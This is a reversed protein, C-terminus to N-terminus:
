PKRRVTRTGIWREVAFLALALAMLPVRADRSGGQGALGAAPMAQAISAERPDGADRRLPQWPWHALITDALAPGAVVEPNLSVVPRDSGFLSDTFPTTTLILDAVDATRAVGMQEGLLEAVAVSALRIRRRAAADQAHVLVAIPRLSCGACGGGASGAVRAHRYAVGRPGGWGTLTVLTEAAAPWRSATWTASGAPPLAHWRVRARLAPRRGGLVAVRPRAIVLMEGNRSVLPDASVLLDWLTGRQDAASASGPVRLASRTGDLQVKPLGPKLLRVTARSRALSDLLSDSRILVTDLLLAPEMLVLHSVTGSLAGTGFRPGALGLVACALIALRLALLLPQTLRASWSRAETLETVHRLSGVRVVGRPRRSWLHLALPIALSALCYLWLPATFM